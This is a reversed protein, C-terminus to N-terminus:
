RYKESAKTITALHTCKRDLAPSHSGGGKGIDAALAQKAVSSLGSLCIILNSLPPLKHSAYPALEGAQVSARVWGPSVVRAEPARALALMPKPAGAMRTVIVHVPQASIEDVENTVTGGGNAIARLLEPKEAVTVSSVLIRLGAFVQQGAM